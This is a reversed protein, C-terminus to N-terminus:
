NREKLERQAKRAELKEQNRAAVFSLSVGVHHACRALYYLVDGLEEVYKDHYKDLISDLPGDNRLSKKMLDVVEGAEGGLGLTAYTLGLSNPYVATTETWQQYSNMDM